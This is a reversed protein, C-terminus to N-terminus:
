AVPSHVMSNTYGSAVQCVDTPWSASRGTCDANGDENKRPVLDCKPGSFSSGGDIGEM